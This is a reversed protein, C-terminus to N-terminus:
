SPTQPFRGPKLVVGQPAMHYDSATTCNLATSLSGQTTQLYRLDLALLTSDIRVTAEALTEFFLTETHSRLVRRM